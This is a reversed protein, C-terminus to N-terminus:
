LIATDDFPFILCKDLDGTLLEIGHKIRTALTHHPDDNDRLVLAKVDRLREIMRKDAGCFAECVAYYHSHSNGNDQQYCLVLDLVDGREIRNERGSTKMSKKAKCDYFLSLMWNNAIPWARYMNLTDFLDGFLGRHTTIYVLRKQKYRWHEDESPEEKVRKM